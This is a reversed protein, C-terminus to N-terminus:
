KNTSSSEPSKSKKIPRRHASQRDQILDRNEQLFLLMQDDAVEKLEGNKMQVTPM